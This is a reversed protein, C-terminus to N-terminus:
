QIFMYKARDESKTIGVEDLYDRLTDNDKKNFTHTDTITVLNEYKCGMIKSVTSRYTRDIYRDSKNGSVSTFIPYIWNRPCVRQLSTDGSVTRELVREDCEWPLKKRYQALFEDTRAERSAVLIQGDKWALTLADIVEMYSKTGYIKHAFADIFTFLIDKANNERGYQTEVLTSM